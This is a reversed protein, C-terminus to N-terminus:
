ILVGAIETSIIGSFYQTSSLPSLLLGHIALRLWGLTLKKGLKKQEQAQMEGSM